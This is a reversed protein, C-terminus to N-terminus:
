IFLSQFSELNALVCLVIPESPQIFGFLLVGFFDVGLSDYDFKWFSLPLSFINILPLFSM